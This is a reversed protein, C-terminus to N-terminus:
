GLRGRRPTCSASGARPASCRMHGSVLFPADETFDGHATVEFTLALQHVDWGQFFNVHQQARLNIGYENSGFRFNAM